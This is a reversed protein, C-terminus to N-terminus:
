NSKTIIQVHTGEELADTPDTVLRETGELGSLVEVEKGFDRGVQVTQFHVKEDPTITAVRTGKGDILLTNAPIRLLPHARPTLFQVQAYMGPILLNNPNKLRVEVLMTRSTADLAGSTHVVIGHFTRGPFEQFFINAPQEPKITGVYVQPVNVQVRLTDTRAIGLLGSHTVTSTPDLAGSSGGANILAGADVNRATIVGDYPATIREFSRMAEYRNVNAVSASVTAQAATVNAQGARVSAQTATVNARGASVAAEAASVKQKASNVDARAAEVDSNRADVSAQAAVIDAQSSEVDAQASAVSSKNAEFNSEAEDLDQGSVAGGRALEQWRRYTREALALRTQTRALEARRGLLKKQSQILIARAEAVAGQTELLKANAHALDAKAAELNSQIRSLDAQSQVVNAQLRAVDAQAQQGGAQSKSTEARAEMLQQDVEPSEIVALVQGAKVRSGIDVNLEHLYGTTRAHIATEEIAQVNSPLMLENSAAGYHPSTANVPVLDTSVGAADVALKHSQQMRPVIGLALFAGLVCLGLLVTAISRFPSIPPKSVPEKGTEQIPTDHPPAPTHGPTPGAAHSHDKHNHDHHSHDSHSHDTSNM